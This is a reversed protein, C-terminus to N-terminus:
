SSNFSITHFPLHVHLKNEKLLFNLGFKALKFELQGSQDVRNEPPLSTPLTSLNMELSIGEPLSFVTGCDCVV